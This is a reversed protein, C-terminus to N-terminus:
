YLTEFLGFYNEFTKSVCSPNAIQIGGARLGTLSFAMAMRHDDYTEVLSPKPNGPYVVLGNDTEDCRIGMKRLETLTASLRDSEQHRIHGVNRIVTPSSAFPAIAALTMTQDSCDNMDADIGALQAGGTVRVGEPTEAVKCGMRELIGLFQIDGQMSSLFVNKVLVSGGTLAAAAYFYCAGSVDPEVAYDRATYGEGAPVTYVGGDWVAEVGFQAMMTLTIGIYSKAIEGGGPRIVLDNRHLIGTMLLASTFQSSMGADLTIEGGRLRAGRLTVPLFGEKGLYTVSCGLQVLADLLPKMPRKQMQESAGIRYEGECAALYATLFRAGTGASGVNVSADAKPAGGTIAVTKAAENVSMEFGLAQLCDLFSRTDGSFLVGRLVSTGRAMAALLLARNTVSKSGPVELAANVPNPRLKVPYVHKTM